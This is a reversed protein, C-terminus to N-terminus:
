KRKRRVTLNVSDTVSRTRIKAPFGVTRVQLEQPIEWDRWTFEPTIDIPKRGGQEMDMHIRQIIVSGTSQGQLLGHLGM